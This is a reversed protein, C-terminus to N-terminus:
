FSYCLSSNQLVDLLLRNQMLPRSTAQAIRYGNRHSVLWCSRVPECRVFSESGLKNCRADARAILHDQRNPVRRTRRVRTAYGESEDRWSCPLPFPADPIAPLQRNPVCNEPEAPAPDLSM